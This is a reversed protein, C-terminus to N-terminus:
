GSGLFALLADAVAAPEDEMAFHGAGPVLVREAGPIAQALRRGVEPALWRDEAGWLVLTPVGITELLPALAAMDEDRWQEIKRFYAAQGEEGRWPRVYAALVDDPLPRHVATAFHGAVVREYLHAPMTRYADLHKRMHITAPTNWPLLVAADLLAIRSAPRGELLHARLVVSAGVDHGVLVPAELGWLDLLEALAKGQAAVSMDQGDRRESDGYGLLDFLHVTFRERLQEAVERWVYSWSPTGHVLVVPPGQGLRDWAIRGGSLDARKRLGWDNTATRGGV